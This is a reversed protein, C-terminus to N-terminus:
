TGYIKNCVAIHKKKVSYHFMVLHIYYFYILCIDDTSIKRM